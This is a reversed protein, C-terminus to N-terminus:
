IDVRKLIIRKMRERIKIDQVELSRNNDRPRINIFSEYILCDERGKDLLINFGWLNSQKSGNKLLIEEADVHMEGGLAIIEREIDVVGKIMDGYFEKALEILNAKSIVADVIKVNM